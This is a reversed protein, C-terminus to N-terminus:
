CRARVVGDGGPPTMSAKMVGAGNTLGSGAGRWRRGPVGDNGSSSSNV